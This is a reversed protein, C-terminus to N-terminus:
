KKTPVSPKVKDKGALIQDIRAKYGPCNRSALKLGNIFVSPTGRVKFKGALSMDAQTAATIKAEDAMLADFAALDMGLSEAYGRLDAKAVKKPNAVIKDHFKWFGDNGKQEFALAAAAHVPKAKPHMRLPFHKFVWRVKGPYEALIKTIVPAERTCFPCQFDVYEVITVPADEPGRIPSGAIPIDYITTDPAAKQRQPRKTANKVAALEAKMKQLDARLAKVEATVKALEAQVAKVDASSDGEQAVAPGCLLLGVAAASIAIRMTWVTKMAVGKRVQSSQQTVLNALGM